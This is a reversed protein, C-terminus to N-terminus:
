SCEDEVFISGSLSQKITYSVLPFSSHCTNNFAFVDDSTRSCGCMHDSVPLERINVSFGAQFSQFFFGPRGSVADFTRLLHEAIYVNDSDLSGTPHM